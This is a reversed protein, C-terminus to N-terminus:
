SAQPHQSRVQRWSRRSGGGCLIALFGERAAKSVSQPFCGVRNQLNMFLYSLYSPSWIQSCAFVRSTSTSDITVQTLSIILVQEVFQGLRGTHGCNVVQSFLKHWSKLNTNVILGRCFESIRFDTGFSSFVVGVAAVGAREPDRLLELGKNVAVTLATIGFSHFHSKIIRMKQWPFQCWLFTQCNQDVGRQWRNALGWYSSQLM